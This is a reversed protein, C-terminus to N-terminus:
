VAEVWFAGHETGYGSCHALVHRPGEQRVALEAALALQLAAAAALFNGVHRKPHLIESGHVGARQFIEVEARSFVPDGDGAAVLSMGGEVEHRNLTDLHATSLSSDCITSCLRYDRVQALVRACRRRAQEENELVLFAAGEGPIAGCGCSIWSDFVGLQQLSVFSLARTKVDCAGVVACPVEGRRIARIGAAIAQAGNGEWPTYVANPGRLNEFISVFCIPMNALIKFSLVPRIRKLAVRGFRELDLSGDPGAANEILRQIEESPVGSLGTAGYLAIDEAPYSEGPRIGADELARRAAVVAMQADRNMLRLTKNDPFHQEADFDLVPAFWPCPFADAFPPRQAATEGHRIRDLVDRACSGLPTVMGLGTIVVEAM